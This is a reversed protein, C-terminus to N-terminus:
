YTWLYDRPVESVFDRMSMVVNPSMSSDDMPNGFLYLRIRQPLAAFPSVSTLRNGSLNVYKLSEPISSLLPAEVLDSDAIQLYELKKAFRLDAKIPGSTSLMPCIAVILSRLTPITFLSDINGISLLRDLVISEIHPLFLFMGVDVFRSLGILRVRKLNPVLELGRIALLQPDYALVFETADADIEKTVMGGPYAFTLSVKSDAFTVFGVALLVLFILCRRERM